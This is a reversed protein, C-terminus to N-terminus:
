ESGKESRRLPPVVDKQAACVTHLSQLGSEWLNEKM